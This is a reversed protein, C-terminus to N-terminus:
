KVPKASESYTATCFITPCNPGLGVNCTWTGSTAPPTFWVVFTYSQGPGLSFPEAPFEYTDDTLSYNPCNVTPFGSLIGSGTNTVTVEETLSFDYTTGMDIYTGPYISCVAASGTVPVPQCQTGTALSCAYTGGADPQFRVTVNRSQGASLDYKGGGSVIRFGTCSETVDGSLVGGGINTITLYGDRYYGVTVTGFDLNETSLSCVPPPEATCAVQGCDSGLNINCDGGTGSASFYQVVVDRSAGAGLSFSGGGSVISYTFCSEVILGTVFGGGINTITFSRQVAVGAPPAGFDLSTTSLSCAPAPQATCAVQGCDSGLSLNCDGGSGSSSLYQVIVDRSAQAGLSFSGGGSVISFDPCSEVISGTVFGSGINTITFSRQVAAGALPAGFDLSTTSLSCVPAPQATCAVQGCDSGLSISCNGGTGSASSYQVIVDRSAQAGLSFSGGGSVISFDSCSEVISGTVFGGGINTITFSRQVAVGAPPAGFDLSTTSLSCDAPATGVGSLPVGECATGTSVTCAFAGVEVPAFRVTVSVSQGAGLSFGGGGSVLTFGACQSLSVTGTLTGSGDNTIVFTKSTETRVEMADFDLASPRILCKPSIEGVGALQVATCATGLELQCSYPGAATPFFRVTISRSQDAGLSFDGGGSVLTFGACQSLSVTGTLTGGGTNTLQLTTTSETGAEVIGFDFGPPQVVCASLAEGTGTLSVADCQTGLGVECAHSGVDDPSFEVTVSRSQGQTLSFSGAGSLVSYGACNGLSVEGTLIGGGTNTLTFSWTSRSGVARPGFDHSGESLSCVPSLELTSRTAEPTWASTDAGDFARLRYTYSTGPQLDGDDFSRDSPDPLGARIWPRDGQRRDLQFGAPDRSAFAWTIRIGSSSLTVATLNEPTPIPTHGVAINSWDSVGASGEARGRYEYTTRDALGADTYSVEGSFSGTLHTVETFTEEGAVRRLLRYSTENEANDQWTLLISTASIPQAVLESPALPPQADVLMLTVTATEGSGVGEIGAEGEYLVVGGGLAEVRVRYLDAPPVQLELSFTSDEPAIDDNAQAQLVESEDPLVEWAFARVRDIPAAQALPQVPTEDLFVVQLRLSAVAGPRAANHDGCGLSLWLMALIAISIGFYHRSRM